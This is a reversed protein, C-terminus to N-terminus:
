FGYGISLGLKMRIENAYVDFIRSARESNGTATMLGEGAFMDITFSEGVKVHYGLIFGIHFASAKDNINVYVTQYYGYIPDYVQQEGEYTYNCSKYLVFPAIYLGNFVEPKKNMFFKLEMQIRFASYNSIGSLGTNLFSTQDKKAYGAQTKFATKAGTKLEYAFTMYNIASQFPYVSIINNYRFVSRKVKYKVKPAAEVPEDNQDTKTQSCADNYSSTLSFILAALFLKNKVPTFQSRKM